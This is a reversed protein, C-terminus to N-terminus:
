TEGIRVGIPSVALHRNKDEIKQIVVHTNIGETVFVVPLAFIVDLIAVYFAHRAIRRVSLPSITINAPM